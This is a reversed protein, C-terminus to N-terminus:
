DVMASDMTLLFFHMRVVRLPAGESDLVAGSPARDAHPSVACVARPSVAVVAAVPLLRAAAAGPTHNRNRARQTGNGPPRLHAFARPMNRHTPRPAM